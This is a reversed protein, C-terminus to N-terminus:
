KEFLDPRIKSKKVGVIREIEVARHAPCSLYLWKFVCPATVNLKKALEHFSGTKNIAELVGLNKERTISSSMIVITLLM